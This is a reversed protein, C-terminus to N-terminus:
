GKLMGFTREIVVRTRSLTTNFRRQVNNLHSNDRYPTLMYNSLPYASDALLHYQNQFYRNEDQAILTAIDSLRWVIADHVSGCMGTFVDIFKLTHDCIGQLLISHYGKRNIYNDPNETPASITIHSGDIAGIVGPFGHLQRFEREIFVMEHPEPWKIYRYADETLLMAIEYVCKWVIDKSVGFRDAISRYVEQNGFFWLAIAIQKGPPMKEPSHERHLRQELTQVLMEYTHKEVRFHSKFDRLDM